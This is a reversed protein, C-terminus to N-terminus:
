SDMLTRYEHLISQLDYVDFLSTPFKDVIGKCDVEFIVHEQHLELMRQIAHLLALAEGDMSKPVTVTYSAVFAGGKGNLNYALVTFRTNQFLPTNVNCKM